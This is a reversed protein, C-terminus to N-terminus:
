RNVGKWKLYPVMRWYVFEDGPVQYAEWVTIAWHERLLSDMVMAAVRAEHADLYFLNGGMWPSGLQDFQVRYGYDM